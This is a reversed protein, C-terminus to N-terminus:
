EELTLMSCALYPSPGFGMWLRTWRLTSEKLSLEKFAMLNVGCYPRISSHLPFNHFMEGVDMDMQYTGPELLRALSVSTPLFFSPAWVAENVGSSTGDYVIRIDDEGKPVPFFRIDWRVCGTELYGTALIRRIKDLYSSRLSLDPLPKSILFKNTSRLNRKFINFGDRAENAFCPWRWFILTSGGTWEFWTSTTVRIIVDRGGVISKMFDTFTSSFDGRTTSM